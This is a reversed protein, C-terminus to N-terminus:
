RGAKRDVAEALEAIRRNGPGIPVGANIARPCAALVSLARQLVEESLEAFAPVSIVEAALRRALPYDIDNEWLIGAAFPTGERALQRFLPTGTGGASLVFVQPPGEPAPLEASGSLPDWDAGTLHFAAPLGGQLIEQPTGASVCHDEDVLVIQDSIKLALDIEHLSMLVTVGEQRSLRRILIMLDQQFRIDLYATPEDLVLLRPEQCLARALLVRQKQGDSLEAFPHEALDLASVEALSRRVVERDHASLRGLRGTHPYRGSSVIESVSLRGGRVRETLLVSRLRAMEQPAYTGADRGCVAIRGALPRLQGIITKLLTSKGAGNPGIVSVIQGSALNLQVEDLLVRGHYGASLGQLGLVPTVGDRKEKGERGDRM